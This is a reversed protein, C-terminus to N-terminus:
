RKAIRSGSAKPGKVPKVAKSKANEEAPPQEGILFVGLGVRIGAKRERGARERLHAHCPSLDSWTNVVAVIPRGLVDERRLGMQQARQRHAFARMDSAAYWRRSRLEALTKPM